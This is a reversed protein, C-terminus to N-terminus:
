VSGDYLGNTDIRALLNKGTDNVEYQILLTHNNATYYRGRKGRINPDIATVLRRFENFAEVSAFTWESTFELDEEHWESSAYNAVLDSRSLRLADIADSLPKGEPSEEWFPIAVDPRTCTFYQKFM